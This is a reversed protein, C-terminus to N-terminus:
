RKYCRQLSGFFHLCDKKNPYMQRALAGIQSADRVNKFLVLYHSNLSLTRQKAAFLNQTIYVVSLNKHHSGKTFLQEISPGVDHMLDDLVLLIRQEGTFSDATPLSDTFEVGRLRKYAEQFISYVWIIKEPRPEFLTQSHQVLQLVFETKGSQSSAAVLFNSPHVFKIM